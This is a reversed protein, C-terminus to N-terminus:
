RISAPVAVGRGMRNHTEMDIVSGRIRASKALLNNIRDNLAVVSTPIISASKDLIEVRAILPGLPELKPYSADRIAASVRADLDPFNACAGLNALALLLIFRM